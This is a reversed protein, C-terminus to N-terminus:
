ISRIVNRYWNRRHYPQRKAILMQKEYTVYYAILDALRSNAAEEMFSGMKFNGISNYAIAATKYSLFNEGQIVGIDDSNKTPVALKRRYRIQVIVDNLAGLLLIKNMRWCWWNLTIDQEVNPIFDVPTMSILFSDDEGVQKEKLWIPSILDTPYGSVTTLDTVGQPVTLDASVEDLVQIGNGELQMQLDKFAETFKTLLRTDPWNIASDDNLHTRAGMLCSDVNAM